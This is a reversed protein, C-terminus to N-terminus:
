LGRIKELEQYAEQIEIFKLHAEEIKEEGLHIVRDPHHQSALRWYAKKVEENSASSPVGLIRYPTDLVDLSYKQRIRDHEEISIELAEALENIGSQVEKTLSNDILAIQYSLVLLLSRYRSQASTKYKEIVPRLDPNVRCTERIVQNISDLDSESYNLNQVFFRYITEVERPTMHGKVMALRTMVVIICTAFATEDVVGPLGHRILKRAKRSLFHQVTGGVLAGLPGGRLFGLGAGLIWSM